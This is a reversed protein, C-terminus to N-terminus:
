TSDLLYWDLRRENEGKGRVKSMGCLLCVLFQTGRHDTPFLAATGSLLDGVTSHATMGRVTSVYKTSFGREGCM